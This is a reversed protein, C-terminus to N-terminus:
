YALGSPTSHSYGWTSGPTGIFRSTIEHGNRLYSKFNEFDSIVDIMSHYLEFTDHTFTDVSAVGSPTPEDFQVRKVVSSNWSLTTCATTFFMLLMLLFTRLCFVLNRKKMIM